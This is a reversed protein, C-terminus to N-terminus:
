QASEKISLGDKLDPGPALVVRDGSQLGTVVRVRDGEPQGLVVWRLRVVGDLGAVFVGTLQGREVVGAKPILMVTNDQGPGPIEVIALTGPRMRRDPNDVLVQVRLGPARPDGSSIVGELVGDRVELGFRVRMQQGPVLRAADQSGIAAVVRLRSDDEVVFLPQGPGVINGPETLKQVIVGAFPSAVSAYSVNTDVEDITAHATRTAAQAQAAAVEAAELQTRSAAGAALLSTMRRMNIEAVDLATAAAEESATAMRRRAALDRTDLCILAQNAEVRQGEQFRVYLVKAMIRASPTARRIPEATGALTLTSAAQRSEVAVTRVARPPLAPNGATVAQQRGCGLMGASFIPVVIGVHFLAGKSWDPELRTTTM